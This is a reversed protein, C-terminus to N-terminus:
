SSHKGTRGLLWFAAVVFGAVLGFLVVRIAIQDWLIVNQFNALM